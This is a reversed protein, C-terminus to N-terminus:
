VNKLNYKLTLKNIFYFFILEKVGQKERERHHNSEQVTACSPPSAFRTKGGEDYKAGREGEGKTRM